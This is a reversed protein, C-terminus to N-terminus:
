RLMCVNSPGITRCYLCMDFDPSLCKTRHCLVCADRILIVTLLLGNTQILGGSFLIPFVSSKAVAVLLVMFARFVFGGRFLLLIVKFQNNCPDFYKCLSKLLLFTLIGLFLICKSVGRVGVGGFFIFYFYLWFKWTALLPDQTCLGLLLSGWWCSRFNILLEITCARSSSKSRFILNSM